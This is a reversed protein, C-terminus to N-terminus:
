CTFVYKLIAVFLYVNVASEYIIRTGSISGESDFSLIEIGQRADQEDLVLFLIIIIFLNLLNRLFLLLGKITPWSELYMQSFGAACVAQCVWMMHMSMLAGRNAGCHSHLKWSLRKLPVSEFLWIHDAKFFCTWRLLVQESAIHRFLSMREFGEALVYFEIFKM